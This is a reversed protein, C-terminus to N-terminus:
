LAGVKGCRLGVSGRRVALHRRHGEADGPLVLRACRGAAVLVEHADRGERLVLEALRVLLARASPPDTANLPTSYLPAGNLDM